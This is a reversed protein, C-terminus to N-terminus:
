LLFFVARNVEGGVKLVAAPMPDLLRNMTFGDLLLFRQRILNVGREDRAFRRVLVADRLLTLLEIGEDGVAHGREERLDRLGEGNLHRHDVAGEHPFEMSPIEVLEDSQLNGNISQFCVEVIIRQLHFLEERDKGVHVIVEGHRVEPERIQETM